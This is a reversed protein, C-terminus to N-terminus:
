LLPASPGGRISVKNQTAISVYVTSNYECTVYVKHVFLRCCLQSFYVDNLYSFLFLNDCVIFFM